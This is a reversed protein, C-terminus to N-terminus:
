DARISCDALARPGNRAYAERQAPTAVSGDKEVIMAVSYPRGTGMLRGNKVKLSGLMRLGGGGGGRYVATDFADDWDIADTPLSASPDRYPRKSIAELLAARLVLATPADVILDPAHLHCGGKGDIAPADACSALVRQRGHAAALLVSQLTACLWQLLPGYETPPERLDVDFFLRLRREDLVECIHRPGAEACYVSHFEERLQPPVYVFAASQGSAAMLLHTKPRSKSYHIAHHVSLWQQLSPLRPSAAQQPAAAAAPAGRMGIPRVIAVAASPSLDAEWRAHMARLAQMPVGHTNRTFLQELTGPADRCRLEVIAVAYAARSAARKYFAYEEIRTNTNDVIVLGVRAELAQGFARRCDSM